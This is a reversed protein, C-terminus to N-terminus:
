KKTAALFEINTEETKVEAAKTNEVAAKEEVVPAAKTEAKTEPKTEVAPTTKTEATTDTTKNNKATEVPAFTNDIAKSVKENTNQAVNNINEQVKEAVKGVSQNQPANTVKALVENAQAVSKSVAEAGYQVTQSMNSNISSIAADSIGPLNAIESSSAGAWAILSQLEAIKENVEICSGAVSGQNKGKQLLVESSTANAKASKERIEQKILDSFISIRSSTVDNIDSTNPNKQKLANQQAVSQAIAQMQSALYLSPGM